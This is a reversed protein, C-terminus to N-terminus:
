VEEATFAIFLAAYDILPIGIREGDGVVFSIRLRYVFMIGGGGVDDLASIDLNVLSDAVLVAHRKGGIGIANCGIILVCNEIRKCALQDIFFISILLEYPFKVDALSQNRRGDILINGESIFCTRIPSIGVTLQLGGKGRSQKACRILFVYICM